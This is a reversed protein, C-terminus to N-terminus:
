QFMLSLSRITTKVATSKAPKVGARAGVPNEPLAVEAGGAVTLGGGPAIGRGGVVGLMLAGVPDGAQLWASGVNRTSGDGLWCAMGAGRM